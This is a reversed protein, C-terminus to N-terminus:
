SGVMKVNGGKLLRREFWTEGVGMVFAYIGDRGKEPCACNVDGFARGVM